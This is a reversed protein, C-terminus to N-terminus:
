FCWVMENGAALAGEVEGRGEGIAGDCVLGM